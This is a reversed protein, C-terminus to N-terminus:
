ENIDKFALKWSVLISSSINTEIPTDLIIEACVENQKNYLVLKHISKSRSVINNIPIIFTYEVINGSTSDASIETDVYIKPSSAYSINQTFAKDLNSTDYYGMIYYPIYESVTLGALARTLATFLGIKASNHKRIRIIKHDRDRYSITVNGSYSVDAFINNNIIAKISLNDNM